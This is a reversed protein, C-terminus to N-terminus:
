RVQPEVDSDRGRDAEIQTALLERGSAEIGGAHVLTERDLTELRAADRHAKRAAARWAHGARAVVREMAGRAARRTSRIRRRPDARVFASWGHRRFEPGLSPDVLIIVRGDSRFRLCIGLLLQRFRPGLDIPGRPERAEGLRRPHGFMAKIAAPLHDIWTAYSLGASAWQCPLTAVLRDAIAEFARPDYDVPVCLRLVLGLKIFDDYRELFSEFFWPSASNRENAGKVHLAFDGRLAGVAAGGTTDGEPPVLSDALQALYGLSADRFPVTRNRARLLSWKLEPGITSQITDVVIALMDPTVTTADAIYLSVGLVPYV